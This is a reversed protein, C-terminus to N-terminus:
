CSRVSRKPVFQEERLFYPFLCAFLVVNEVLLAFPSQAGKNVLFAFGM